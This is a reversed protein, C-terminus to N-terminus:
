SRREPVGLGHSLPPAAQTSVWFRGSITVQFDAVVCGLTERRARAFREYAKSFAPGEPLSGRM